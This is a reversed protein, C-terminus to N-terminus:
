DWFVVYTDLFGDEGFILCLGDNVFDSAFPIWDLIPPLLQCPPKSPSGTPSYSPEGSPDVSPVMTPEASPVVTPEASPMVTPQSSPISSPAETTSSVAALANVFGFGTGFDFGTDFFATAADDMDEATQELIRYVEAPTLSPKNQIMLAAIASVHPAAASTGFFRYLGMDERGFFTTQGGDPGVFNPKNRVEAHELRNGSTDFFIPTGGASSFSEQEAPSVGFGPTRDYKAAGVSAAGAAMSHGYSTSSSVPYEVNRIDAGRAPLWKIYNPVPGSKKTILINVTNLTSPVLNNIIIGEWADKNINDSDGFLSIRQSSSDFVFFDLDISSGVGPSVSAFPEDWQMTLIAQGNQNAEVDVSQLFDPSGDDLTGFVMADYMTGNIEAKRFEIPIETTNRHWSNRASNGAASFYSVGAAVVQNVAQAIIGDQFMPEVLYLIDDVIVQCGADSALRLIGNAFVPMGGVATHFALEAGPAVDHILQMMGRGEDIGGGIETCNPEVVFSIGAPLDGSTVDDSATTPLRENKCDYSDSLVGVKIGSGDVMFMNRADDSNQAMDGESTVSGANSLPALSPNVLIVHPSSAIQPLDVVTGFGSCVHKYCQITEFGINEIDTTSPSTSDFVVEVLVKGRNDQFTLLQDLAGANPLRGQPGDMLDGLFPGLNNHSTPKKPLVLASLDLNKNAAFTMGFPFSTTIVLALITSLSSHYVAIMTKTRGNETQPTWLIALQSM